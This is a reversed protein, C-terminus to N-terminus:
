SRNRDKKEACSSTSTCAEHKAWKFILVTESIHFWIRRKISTVWGSYQHQSLSMSLGGTDGGRNPDGRVWWQLLTALFEGVMDGSMGTGM